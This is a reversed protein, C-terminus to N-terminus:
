LGMQEKIEDWSIMCNELGQMDETDATIANELEDYTEMGPIKYDGNSLEVYEGEYAGVREYMGEGVDSKRLFYVSKSGVDTDVEGDPFFSIYKTEVEEDTLNAFAMSNRVQERFEEEYSDFYEQLKAYGGMKFITIEEGEEVDGYLCELVQITEDTSVSGNEVVYKFDKAEAYVVLEADQMLSEITGYSVDMEAAGAAGMLVDEKAPKGHLEEMGGAEEKGCGMGVVLIGTMLLVVFKKM